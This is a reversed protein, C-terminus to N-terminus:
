LPDRTMDTVIARLAFAASAENVEFSVAIGSLSHRVVQAGIEGGAPHHLSLHEGVPPRASTDLLAGAASISRLRSPHDGMETSLTCIRASRFRGELRRASLQRAGFSM